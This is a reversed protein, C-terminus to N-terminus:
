MEIAAGDRLIRSAEITHSDRDGAHERGEHVILPSLLRDPTRAGKRCRVLIRGAPKGARSSIPLVRMDGARAALASAVAGLREARHILTLCGGQRLRRFGADLWATLAMSEGTASDKGPDRPATGSGAEFYPPNTIVHDFSQCTLAPPMSAVDGTVVELGIGNLVANERALEALRPQLEIATLALGPVRWGLCLSAVGAGGGLDLVTQGSRAPVASALFVPDASARYGRVPQRISLRGDLFADTSTGIDLTM